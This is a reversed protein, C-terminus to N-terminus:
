SSEATQAAQPASLAERGCDDPITFLIRTGVGPTSTLWMRGGHGEVIRKCLALGIGTGSFASRTHLRRFLEFVYTHYQADIGIGNDSVEFRWAEGERKAQVHIEPPTDERSYKLANGLLNDFVQRLQTVDATLRPMPGIVIRAQKEDIQLRRSEVVGAVMADCDVPEIEFGHAGAQSYQLLDRVLESLRKAEGIIFDLYEKGESGLNDAYKRDLLQSFSVLGRIPEQLDHAAVYAFRELEVNTRSLEAVLQQLDAEARKREHNEHQLEANRDHLDQVALKLRQAITDFAFRLTDIEDGPQTREYYDDRVSAQTLLQEPVLTGVNRALEEIRGTVMRRFVFYMFAAVLFTKISNSVLITIAQSLLRSYLTDLSAVVEIVAIQQPRGRAEYLLPYHRTVLRSSAGSAATWSSKGDTTTVTARDIHTLHTLADLALGIQREDFAWVSAAIPPLFIRVEELMSDLDARQQRYEFFLQLGTALFALFSSFAVILLILKRGIKNAKGRDNWAMMMMM